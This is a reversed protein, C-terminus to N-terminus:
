RANPTEALVACGRKGGPCTPAHDPNPCRSGVERYISTIDRRWAREGLWAGLISLAWLLPWGIAVGVYQWWHLPKGVGPYWIAATTCGGLAYLAILVTTM